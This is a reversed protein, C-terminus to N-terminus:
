RSAVFFWTMILIAPISFAMDVFNWVPFRLEGSQIDIKPGLSTPRESVEALVEMATLMKYIWNMPRCVSCAPILSRHLNREPALLL